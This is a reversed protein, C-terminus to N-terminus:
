LDLSIFHWSNAALRALIVLVHILFAMLVVPGITPLIDEFKFNYIVSFFLKSLVFTFRVLVYSYAALIFFVSMFIIKRGLVSGWYKARNYFRPHVFEDAVVDNRLNTLINKIFWIVTYIAAGVVVWFIIQGIRGSIFSSWLSSDSNNTTVLLNQATKQGIPDNNLYNWYARINLLFLLILSTLLYLFVHAPSPILLDWTYSKTERGQSGSHATIQKM